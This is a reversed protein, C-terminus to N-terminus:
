LLENSFHIGRDDLNGREAGVSTSGTAKAGKKGGGIRSALPIDKTTINRLVEGLRM